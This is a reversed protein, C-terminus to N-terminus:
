LLRLLQVFEHPERDKRDVARKDFPQFKNTQYFSILKDIDNAELFVVMGGAQYQLLEIRNM